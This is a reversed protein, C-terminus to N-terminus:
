GEKFDGGRFIEKKNNVAKPTNFIREVIVNPDKQKKCYKIADFENFSTFEYGYGIQFTKEYQVRNKVNVVGYRVNFEKM